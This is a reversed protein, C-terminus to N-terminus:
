VPPSPTKPAIWFPATPETVRWAFIMWGLAIFSVLSYVGMFAREGLRAVLAPRLPHSMLLHSGVFALTALALSVIATM